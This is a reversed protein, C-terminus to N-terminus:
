VRFRRKQNIGVRRTMDAITKRTAFFVGPLGNSGLL